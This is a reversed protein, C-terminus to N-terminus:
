LSATHADVQQPRHPHSFHRARTKGTRGDGLTRREKCAKEKDFLWQDHAVAYKKKAREYEAIERKHIASALHRISSMVGKGTSAEALLWFYLHPSYRGTDYRGMVRPLCGSLVALTSLLLIDRQRLDPTQECIRRLRRPLKTYVEEPILPTNATLEESVNTYDEIEEGEEDSLVSPQTLFPVPACTVSQASQVCDFTGFTRNEKYASAVALRIEAVDFDLASLTDACFSATEFESFGQENAKLGFKFVFANRTGPSFANYKRFQELLADLGRRQDPVSFLLSDEKYYADPDYSVFSLHSYDKCAPDSKIGLLQEYFVSVALFAALHEEEGGDTTVLLRIGDGSCTKWCATTYECARCLLLMSELLDPNVHDFDQFLMGNYTKLQVKAHGGEFVGSTAFAPLRKKLQDAEKTKGEAKLKRFEEIVTKWEESRIRNVIAEITTDVPSKDMVNKFLSVAPASM